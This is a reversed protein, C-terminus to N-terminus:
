GGEMKVFNPFNDYFIDFFAGMSKDICSFMEKETIAIGPKKVKAMELGLLDPLITKGLEITVIKERM